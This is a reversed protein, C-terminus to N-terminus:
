YKRQVMVSYIQYKLTLERYPCIITKKSKIILSRLLFKYSLASFTAWHCFAQRSHTFDQPDMELILIVVFILILVHKRLKRNIYDFSCSSLSNRKISSGLNMVKNEKTRHLFLNNGSDAIRFIIYWINCPSANIWLCPLHNSTNQKQTVTFQQWWLM